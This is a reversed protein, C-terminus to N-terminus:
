RLFIAELEALPYIIAGEKEEKPPKKKHQLMKEFETHKGKSYKDLNCKSQDNYTAQIDFLIWGSTYTSFLM